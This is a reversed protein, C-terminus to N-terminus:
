QGKWSPDVTCCGPRVFDAATIPSTVFGHQMGDEYTYSGVVEGISNVGLPCTEKAGPFTLTLFKGNRYAFGSLVVPGSYCGVIIDNDNIDWAQSMSSGPYNLTRFKGNQYIFGEITASDVWGVVEDNNNIGAGYALSFGGPPPTINRLKGNRSEFVINPASVFGAGGVMHGLDNLGLLITAQKVGARVTTIVGDQYLFGNAAGGGDIYAWGAAVGSDNIRYPYTQTAQPYDFSSFAGHSYVYGSAPGSLSPGSYGVIDGATNIGGASNLVAGPVDITTYTVQVTPDECRAQQPQIVFLIVASLVVVIAHKHLHM